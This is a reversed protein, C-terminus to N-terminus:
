RRTEPVGLVLPRTHHGDPKKEWPATAWAMATAARPAPDIDERSGPSGSEFSGLTQRLCSAGVGFREGYPKLKGKM